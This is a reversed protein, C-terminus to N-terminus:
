PLWRLGIMLAWFFSEWCHGNKWVDLCNQRAFTKRYIALKLHKSETPLQKKYIATCPQLLINHVTLTNWTQQHQGKKNWFVSASFMFEMDSSGHRLRWCSDFSNWIGFQSIMIITSGSCGHLNIVTSNRVPLFILFFLSYKTCRTFRYSRSGVDVLHQNAVTPMTWNRGHTTRGQSPTCAGPRLM